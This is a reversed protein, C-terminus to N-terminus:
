AVKFSRATSNKIRYTGDSQKYIGLFNLFNQEVFTDHKDFYELIIPIQELDSRLIKHTKFLSQFLYNIIDSNLYKVLENAPVPFSNHLIFFNTSNLIYRQHQDLYFCLHPSIFRYIIKEKAEYLEKPAAQQYLSLNKDIYLSPEKLGHMSIDQGRWVPVYNESIKKDSCFKKNDGTVIGMGWIANNKLFIPQHAYLKEIVKNEDKSIWFNFISKPNNKFEYKRRNHIVSHAYNKIIIDNDLSPIKQLIIAQTSSMIEKFPKEYNTINLINWKLLEKRLDEYATVNFISEPLLYGLIGGDKLITLSVLLFFASSDTSKGSQLLHAYLKKQLLPMKKGWPPNTFIYDFTIKTSTTFLTQKLACQEALFDACLINQSADYGTLQFIRKRAIEVAIKDTDYGYINQPSFGKKIAEILFNGTGCSPDLFTKDGLHEDPIWKLMDRIIYSPTYYIGEKNRYSESLEKEYSIALEEAEVGKNLLLLYKQFVSLYKNSQKQLKNARARLKEKGIIKSYFDDFSEKDIYGKQAQKLYGLKIWNRVTADSVNLKARIDKIDVLNM